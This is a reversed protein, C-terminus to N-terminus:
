PNQKALELASTTVFYKAIMNPVEWKPLKGAALYQLYRETVEGFHAEHGVHYKDPVQIHWVDNSLRELTIGPYK